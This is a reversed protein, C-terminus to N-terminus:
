WLYKMSFFSPSYYGKKIHIQHRKKYSRRRVKDNHDLHSYLKIPTKDKFHEYRKPDGGFDMTRVTGNRKHVLSVRYKKHKIPSKYINNVKFLKMKLYVM